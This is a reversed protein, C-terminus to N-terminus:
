TKTSVGFHLQVRPQTQHHPLKLQRVKNYKAPFRKLAHHAEKQFKISGTNDRISPFMCKESLSYSRCSMHCTASIVILAWQVRAM